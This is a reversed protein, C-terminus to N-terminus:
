GKGTLSCIRDFGSRIMENLEGPVEEGTPASIPDPINYTSGTTVEALVRVKAAHAPFESKLAECQGQEMTLILDADHMLGATIARSAHQSIDLGLRRAGNIAEAAAPLGDTTWTGASAVRWDTAMNRQALEKRFVAAAIPSRFRNATCVFLIFPM